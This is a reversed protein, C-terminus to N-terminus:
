ARPPSYPPLLAPSPQSCDESVPAAAVIDPQVLCPIIVTGAPTMWAHSHDADHDPVEFEGLGAGDGHHADHDHEHLHGHLVHAFVGLPQTAILIAVAVLAIVSARRRLVGGLRDGGRLRPISRAPDLM